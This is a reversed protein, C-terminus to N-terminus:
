ASALPMYGSFINPTNGKKQEAVIWKIWDVVVNKMYKIDMETM